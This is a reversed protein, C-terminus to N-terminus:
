ESGQREGESGGGEAVAIGSSADPLVLQDALLLHTVAPEPAGRAGDGNPSWPYSFVGSPAADALAAGEELNGWAAVGLCPVDSGAEHMAQRIIASGGTALGDAVIWGGTERAVRALGRALEHAEHEPLNAFETPSGSLVSLVAAPEGVLTESWDHFLLRSLQPPEVAGEMRAFLTARKRTALRLAGITVSPRSPDSLM